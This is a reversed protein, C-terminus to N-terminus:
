HTESRSPRSALHDRSQRALKMRVLALHIGDPLRRARRWAKPMLTSTSVHQRPRALRELELEHDRGLMRYTEFMTSQCQIFPARGVDTAIGINLALAVWREPRVRYGLELGPPGLLGWCGLWKRMSAPTMQTLLAPNAVEHWGRTSGRAM